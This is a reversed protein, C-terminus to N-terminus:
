EKREETIIQVAPAPLLAPENEYVEGPSESTAPMVNVIFQPRRDSLAGVGAAQGGLEEYLKRPLIRQACFEVAWIHHEHDPDDLYELIRAMVAPAVDNLVRSGAKLALAVDLKNAASLAKRQDEPKGKPDPPPVVILARIEDRRAEYAAKRKAECVRCVGGHAQYVGNPGRGKRYPWTEPTVIKKENCKVCTRAEVQPATPEMCWRVMETLHARGFFHGAATPFYAAPWACCGPESFPSRVPFPLEVSDSIIKGAVGRFLKELTCVRCGRHCPM